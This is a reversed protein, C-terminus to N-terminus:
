QLRVPVHGRLALKAEQQLLVAGGELISLAENLGELEAKRNEEREAYSEAKAICRSELMTLYKAVPDLEAQVGTKDSEADSVARALEAAEKTKFKVDAEKSAKEIFNEIYEQKHAAVASEETVVLEALSKSLDSEVVELMRMVSAAGGGKDDGYYDALAKLALRVGDLGEELAAKNVLFDQNERARLKDLESQAFVLEALGKQLELVEEKLKASRGSMQDIKTTLKEIASTKHDKKVRTEPLEQDCYAKETADADAAEELKAIMDSILSRVKGFQDQSDSASSRIVKELRKALQSLAVSGVKRALDRILRVAEFQALQTESSVQMLSVQNLGYTIKDAGGAKEQLATKAVALAKLEETREKMSSEFDSAKTMCDKHLDELSVIGAALDNSTVVRDGEAVAKAEGSSALTKKTEDMEKTAFKIDDELSQKLM